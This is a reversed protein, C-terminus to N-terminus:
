ESAAVEGSALGADGEVSDSTTRTSAVMVVVKSDDAVAEVGEPLVLEGIQLSEGVGLDSVNVDIVEPIDGPPCKIALDTIMTDLVGGDDKVGKAIGTYNLSVVVEVSDQSAISFFSLHYLVGKWPHSQVERILAKGKWPMDPVNVSVLTNNIAADRVLFEAERTNVTLAVSEAGQHGYLVAPLRGERRIAKPKQKPDRKNCTISLEM